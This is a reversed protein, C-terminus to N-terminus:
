LSKSTKIEANDHFCSKSPSTQPHPSRTDKQMKNKGHTQCHGRISIDYQATICMLLGSLQWQRERITGDLSSEAARDQLTSSASRVAPGCLMYYLLHTVFRTVILNPWPPPHPPPITYYNRSGVTEVHIACSMLPKRQTKKIPLCSVLDGPGPIQM